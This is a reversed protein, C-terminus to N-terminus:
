KNKTNEPLITSIVSPDNRFIAKAQDNIKELNYKKAFTPYGILFDFDYGSAIKKSIQNAVDFMDHGVFRYSDVIKKVAQNAQEETIGECAINKIETLVATIVDSTKESNPATLTICLDGYDYNWSSYSISISAIKKQNFILNKQLMDSMANIFIETALANDKERRYNPIRWYMEIMPVSIQNSYRTLAITSDHHSPEQMRVIDSSTKKCVSFHKKVLAIADNKIINGAIIITIRNNAYNYEKFRRIDDASIQKLSELNGEIDSGYKSHWYLSRMSEKRMINKDIQSKNLLNNEVLKKQIAMDEKSFSFNSYIQGFNKLIGDLNEKKALVYYISQDYGVYSNIEAGYHMTNGNDNLKKLYIKSLLNALGEKEVEDTSGCSVCFMVLLMDSSNAEIFIVSVGNDLKEQHLNRYEQGFSVFQSFLFFLVIVLKRFLKLM